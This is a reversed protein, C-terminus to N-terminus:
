VTASFMTSGANACSCSSNINRSTYRGPHVSEFLQNLQRIWHPLCPDHTYDRLNASVWSFKVGNTYDSDTGNFLDNEFYFNYLEPHHALATIGPPSKECLSSEEDGALAIPSALILSIAPVIALLRHLDSM